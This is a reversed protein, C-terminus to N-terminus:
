YYWCRGRCNWGFAMVAHIIELLLDRRQPVATGLLQVRNAQMLQLVAERGWQPPAVLPDLNVLSDISSDLSLGRLLGRRIDGDTLTGQLVGDSSVLLVIQISSENLCAIAQQLSSVSPLVAKRWDKGSRVSENM